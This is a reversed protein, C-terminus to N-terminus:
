GPWPLDGAVGSDIAPLLQQTFLSLHEREVVPRVTFLAGIEFFCCHILHVDHVLLDRHLFHLFRRPFRPFCRTAVEKKM